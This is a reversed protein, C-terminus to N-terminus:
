SPPAMAINWPWVVHNYNQGWPSSPSWSLLHMAVAAIVAANRFRRTLLALGITLELFPAALSLPHVIAQARQPLHRLFPELM